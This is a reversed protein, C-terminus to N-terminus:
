IEYIFKNEFGKIMHQLFSDIKEDAIVFDGCVEDDIYLAFEGHTNINEYTRRVEIQKIELM